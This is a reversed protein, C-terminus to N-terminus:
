SKSHRDSLRAVLLCSRDREREDGAERGRATRRSRAETTRARHLLRGNCAQEGVGRAPLPRRTGRPTDRTCAPTVGVRSGVGRACAPKAARSTRWRAGIASARRGISRTQHWAWVLLGARHVQVFSSRTAAPSRMVGLRHGERQHLVSFQPAGQAVRQGCSHLFRAQDLQLLGQQQRAMFMSMSM